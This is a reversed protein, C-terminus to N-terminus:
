DLKTIRGEKRATQVIGEETDRKIHNIIADRVLLNYEYIPANAFVSTNDGGEAVYDNLAIRYTKDLDVDKGDIKVNIAKGEKIDFKVGRSIPWGGYEAIMDFLKLVDKGSLDVAVLMNEFPMVEYVTRVTIPGKAISNSRVGGYNQVAFDVKTTSIRNAEDLMIDTFWNGISSEVREKVLEVDLEGIVINMKADLQSKYPDILKAMEQNQQKDKGIEIREYKADATHWIM